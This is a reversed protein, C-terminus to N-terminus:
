KSTVKWIDIMEEMEKVVAVAVSRWSVREIGNVPLDDWEEAMLANHAACAIRDLTYEWRPGEMLLKSM